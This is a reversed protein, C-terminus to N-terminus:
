EFLGSYHCSVLMIENALKLKCTSVKNVDHFLMRGEQPLKEVPLIKREKQDVPCTITYLGNADPPVNCVCKKVCEICILHSCNTMFFKTQSSAKCCCRRCIFTM